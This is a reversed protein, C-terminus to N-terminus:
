SKKVARMLRAPIANPRKSTYKEGFDMVMEVETDFLIIQFDVCFYELVEARIIAAKMTQRLASNKEEFRGMSGSRDLIITEYMNIRNTDPIETNRRMVKPDQFLQYEILKGTNGLRQGSQYYEQENPVIQYEPPLIKKLYRIQKKVEPAVEKKLELFELYLSEEEKSFGYKEM